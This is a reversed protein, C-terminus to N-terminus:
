RQCRPIQAAEPPVRATGCEHHEAGHYCHSGQLLPQTRITGTQGRRCNRTTRLGKLAFCWTITCNTITCNHCSSQFRGWRLCSGGGQRFCSGEAPPLVGGHIAHSTFSLSSLSSNIFLSSNVVNGGPVECQLQRSCQKKNSVAALAGMSERKNLSGCVDSDRLAPWPPPRTPQCWTKDPTIPVSSGFPKFRKRVEPSM